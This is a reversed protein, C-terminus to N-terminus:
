KWTEALASITDTVGSQFSHKFRFGFDLISSSASVIDLSYGAQSQDSFQIEIDGKGMLDRIKCAAEYLTIPEENTIDITATPLSTLGGYIIGAVVDDVHTFIRRVQGSGRFIVRRDARHIKLIADHIFMRTCSPGYVNYLRLLRFGRQILQPWGHFYAEAAIRSAVYKSEVRPRGSSEFGSYFNLVAATSIMFFGLDNELCYNACCITPLLFDDIGYFPDVLSNSIVSNGACYFIKTVGNKLHAMRLIRILESKDRLDVKFCSENACEGRSTYFVTHGQSRLALVLQRGIFGSGGVVLCVFKRM